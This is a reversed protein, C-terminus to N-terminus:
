PKSANYEQSYQNLEAENESRNIDSYSRVLRSSDVNMNDSEVNSAKKSRKVTRIEKHEELSDTHGFSEYKRKRKRQVTGLNKNGLMALTRGKKVKSVLNSKIIENYVEECIEIQNKEEHEKNRIAYSHGIFKHALDTDM